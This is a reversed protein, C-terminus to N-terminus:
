ITVHKPLCFAILVLKKVDLIIKIDVNPKVLQEKAQRTAPFSFDESYKQTKDKVLSAAVSAQQSVGPQFTESVSRDQLTEQLHNHLSKFRVVFM